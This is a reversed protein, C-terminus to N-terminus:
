AREDPDCGEDHARSTTNQNTTWFAALFCAGPVLLTLQLLPLVGIGLLPAIPMRHSYSWRGTALARWEIAAAAGAGLLALTAYVNWRREMGWRLDGAALAGVGYIGLTITVDGLTAITCVVATTRWPLRALEAYASMQAMEWLWNLTFAAAVFAVRFTRATGRLPAVHACAVEYRPSNAGRLARDSRTPLTSRPHPSM